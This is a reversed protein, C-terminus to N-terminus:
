WASGAAAGAAAGLPPQQRRPPVLRAAVAHARGGHGRPHAALCARVQHHPTAQAVAAQPARHRASRARALESHVVERHVARYARVLPPVAPQLVHSGRGALHGKCLATSHLGVLTVPLCLVLLLCLAQQLLLARNLFTASPVATLTTGHHAHALPPSRLAYTACAGSITSCMLIFGM